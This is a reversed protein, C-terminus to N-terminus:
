ISIQKVRRGSLFADFVVRTFVLATFMSAINANGSMSYNSIVCKLVWLIESEAVAAARTTSLSKSVTVPSDVINVIDANESDSVTVDEVVGVGQPQRAQVSASGGTSHSVFQEMVSAESSAHAAHSMNAKHKLGSMHSTVARRGMAAVDFTKKCVVCYATTENSGKALWDKFGQEKLWKVQFHCTGRPMVLSFTNNKGSTSSYSDSFRPVQEM